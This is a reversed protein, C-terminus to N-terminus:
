ESNKRFFFAPTWSDEDNKEAPEKSAESKENGLARPDFFLWDKPQPRAESTTNQQNKGPEAEARSEEGAQDIHEAVRFYLPEFKEESGVKPIEPMMEAEELVRDRAKSSAREAEDSIKFLHDFKGFSERKEGGDTTSNKESEIRQRTNGEDGTVKEDLTLYALHSNRKQRTKVKTKIISKKSFVRGRLELLLALVFCAFALFFYIYVM